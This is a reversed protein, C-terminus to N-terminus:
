TLGYFSEYTLAPKTAHNKLIDVADNFFAVFRDCHPGGRVSIFRHMKWRNNDDYRLSGANYAVAVKPPDLNTYRRQGAIYATGAHISNGPDALWEEDISNDKLTEQATGILTQM